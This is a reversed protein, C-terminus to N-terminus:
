DHKSRILNRIMSQRQSNLSAGQKKETKGKEKNEGECCSKWERERERERERKQRLLVLASQKRRKEKTGASRM